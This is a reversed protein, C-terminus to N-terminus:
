KTYSNMTPSDGLHSSFHVAYVFNAEDIDNSRMRFIYLTATEFLAFM